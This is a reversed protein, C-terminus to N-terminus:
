RVSPRTRELLAIVLTANDLGKSLKADIPCSYIEFM